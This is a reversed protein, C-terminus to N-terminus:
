VNKIDINRIFIAALIWFIISTGVFTDNTIGQILFSIFGIGFIITYKDYCDNILKLIFKRLLTLILGMTLIFGLMGTGYLITLYLSHPKDIFQNLNNIGKDDDENIITYPLTDLGRGIIEHKDILNMVKIWINLRDTSIDNLKQYIVNNYIDDKKIDVFNISFIIFLISTISIVKAFIDINYIKKINIIIMILLIFAILIIVIFLNSINNLGELIEFSNRYINISKASLVKYIFSNVLLLCGIIGISKIGKIRLGIGIIIPFMCCITIFGVASVMSLTTAYSLLTIFLLIIKKINNDELIFYMFSTCFIVASIGSGFNPHYLTTVIYGSLGGGLMQNIFPIDLLNIGYLYTLSTVSNIIIFVVLSLYYFKYYKEDINTNYLVFFISLYSFWAMGGEFRDHNGFFAIQPYESMISSILIIFALFLVTINVKDKRFEQKLVVVKYTYCMLMFFAGVNLMVSKYYNFVDARMGSAYASNSLIPTYSMFEKKYVFNPIIMLMLISTIIIIKDIKLSNEKRQQFQEINTVM